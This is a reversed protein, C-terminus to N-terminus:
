VRTYTLIEGGDAIAQAVQGLLEDAEDPIFAGTAEVVARLQYYLEEGDIAM